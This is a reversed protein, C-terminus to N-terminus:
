LSVLPHPNAQSYPEVTVGMQIEGLPLSTVLHM